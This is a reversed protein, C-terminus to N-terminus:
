KAKQPSIWKEVPRKTYKSPIPTLLFNFYHLQYCVTQFAQLM